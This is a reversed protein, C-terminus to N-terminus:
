QANRLNWAWRAQLQTLAQPGIALCSPCMAAWLQQDLEVVHPHPHRCFPCPVM